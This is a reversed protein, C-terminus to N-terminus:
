GHRVVEMRLPHGRRGARAQVYCPCASWNDTFSCPNGAGLRQRCDGRRGIYQCEKAQEPLMDRLSDLYRRTRPGMMVGRRVKDRLVLLRRQALDGERAVALLADIEEELTNDAIV